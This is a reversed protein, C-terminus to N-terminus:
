VLAPRGYFLVKLHMLLSKRKRPRLINLNTQNTYQRNPFSWHDCNPFLINEFFVKHIFINPANRGVMFFANEFGDNFAKKTVIWFMKKKGRTSTKFLDFTLNTFSADEFNNKAISFKLIFRGKTFFYNWNNDTFNREKSTLISPNKRKQYHRYLLSWLNCNSFLNNEFFINQM